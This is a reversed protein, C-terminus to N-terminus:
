FQIQLQSRRQSCAPSARSKNRWTLVRVAPLGAYLNILMIVADNGPSRQPRVSPRVSGLIMLQLGMSVVASRSLCRSSIRLRTPGMPLQVAICVASGVASRDAPVLEVKTTPVGRCLSNYQSMVRFPRVALRFQRHPEVLLNRFSDFSWAALLYSVAHVTEERHQM